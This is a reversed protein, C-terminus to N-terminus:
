TSWRQRSLYGVALSVVAVAVPLTFASVWNGTSHPHDLLVSGLIGIMVLSLAGHRWQRHSLEWVGLLAFVGIVGYLLITVSNM